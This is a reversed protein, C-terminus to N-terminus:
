LGASCSSETTNSVFVGVGWIYTHIYAECDECECM